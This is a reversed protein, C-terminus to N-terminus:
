ISSGILISVAFIDIVTVAGPTPRNWYYITSCLVWAGSALTIM